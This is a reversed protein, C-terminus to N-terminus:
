ASLEAAVEILARQMAPERGALAERVGKELPDEIGLLLRFEADAALARTRVRNRM